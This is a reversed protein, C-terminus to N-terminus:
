NDLVVEVTELSFDGLRLLGLELENNKFEDFSPRGNLKLFIWAGVYEDTGGFEPGIGLLGM